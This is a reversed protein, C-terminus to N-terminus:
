LAAISARASITRNSTYFSPTAVQHAVRRDAGGGPLHRGDPMARSCNNLSAGFRAVARGTATIGATVFSDSAAAVAGTGACHKLKPGNASAAAAAIARARRCVITV